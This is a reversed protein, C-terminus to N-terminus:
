KLIDPAHAMIYVLATITGVGAGIAAVVGAAKGLWAFFRGVGILSQWAKLVELLQDHTARIVRLVEHMETMLREHAVSTHRVEALQSEAIAVRATLEETTDRTDKISHFAQTLRAEIQGIRRMTDPDAWDQEQLEDDKM